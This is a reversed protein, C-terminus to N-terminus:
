PRAQPIPDSPITSPFLISNPKISLTRILGNLSELGSNLENVSAGLGDSMRSDPSAAVLFHRLEALTAALEAPLAQSQDGALLSNLSGLTVEARVLM